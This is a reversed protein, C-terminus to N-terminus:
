GFMYSKSNDICFKLVQLARDSLGDKLKIMIKGSSGEDYEFNVNVADDGLEALVDRDKSQSIDAMFEYYIREKLQSCLSHMKSRVAEPIKRRVADMIQSGIDVSM